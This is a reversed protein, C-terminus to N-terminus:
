SNRRTRYLLILLTLVFVLSYPVTRGSNPEGGARCGTSEGSESGGTTAVIQGGSTGGVTEQPTPQHIDSALNATDTTDESASGTTDSENQISSSVPVCGGVGAKVPLCQLTDGCITSSAPNCPILCQKSGTKPDDCFLTGCENDATCPDGPGTTGPVVCFGNIENSNLRKCSLGAPCDPATVVCPVKCIGGVCLGSQCESSTVCPNENPVCAQKKGPVCYKEGGLFTTCDMGCPCQGCEATCFPYTPADTGSISVCIDSLCDDNFSCKSGLEGAGSSKPFCAGGGGVLPACEYGDECQGNTTCKSHCYYGPINGGGVCLGSQCEDSSACPQGIDLLDSGDASPICAGFNTDQLQACVEGDPCGGTNGPSCPKMCTAVQTAPDGVCLLSKCEASTTCPEGIEKAGGSGSSGGDLDPLCVGGTSNSYPYCVLGNPCDNQQPSKCGVACYAGQSGTSQCFAGSDACDVSSSCPEGLNKTGKPPTGSSGGCTGNQCQIQASYYEGQPGDSVVAPCGSNSQCTFNQPYLFCVAIMDDANIDKSKGYPDISPAMTPPDAPNPWTLSHQIGIFHGEEHASVALVDSTYPKNTTSWTQLYGNFGIDAEYIAGGSYTSTTTVGLVYKGFKWEPGEMWVLENKGNTGYGATTIKLNTTTGKDTFSINTCPASQWQQFGNRAATLDSGDTVDASGNQHLYYSVSNSPWRVPKGNTLSIGAAWLVSPCVLAIVVGIALKVAIQM